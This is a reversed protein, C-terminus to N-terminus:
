MNLWFLLLFVLVNKEVYIIDLSFCCYLLFMLVLTDQKLVQWSMCLGYFEQLEIVISLQKGCTAHVILYTYPINLFVELKLARQSVPRIFVEVEQLPMWLAVDNDSPALIEQYPHEVPRSPLEDVAQSSMLAINERSLKSNNILPLMNYRATCVFGNSNPWRKFILAELNDLCTGAFSEVFRLDVDEGLVGLAREEDTAVIWSLYEVGVVQCPLDSALDSVM